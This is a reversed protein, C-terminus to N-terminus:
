FRGRSIKQKCHGPFTSRQTSPQLWLRTTQRARRERERPSHTRRLRLSLTMVAVPFKIPSTQGLPSASTSGPLRAVAAILTPLGCHPMVRTHTHAHTGTARTAVGGGGNIEMRPPIEPQLMHIVRTIICARAKVVDGHQM